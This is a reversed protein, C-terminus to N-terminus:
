SEKAAFHGPMPKLSCLGTLMWVACGIYFLVNSCGPLAAISFFAGSLSTFTYARRSGQNVDFACRQYVALMLCVLALLEFGYTQLQPHSSWLRYHSVLHLMLYICLLVHFLVGPRRGMKRCHALFLLSPVCFVGLLASITQLSDSQGFLEAISNIGIGVAGALIGIAAIQSAPFNFTYKSAENLSRTSLLLYVLFLITILWSFSSAPHGTPLLGTEDAQGLLLLRLLMTLLGCGLAAMPAFKPHLYRKM